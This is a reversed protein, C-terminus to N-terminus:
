LFRYKDLLIVHPYDIIDRIIRDQIALRYRFETTTFCAYRIERGLSPELRRVISDVKSESLNDAVVLMDAPRSPDDM